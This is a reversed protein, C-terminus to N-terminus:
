PATKRYSAVREEVGSLNMRSILTRFRTHSRLANYAPHVGLSLAAADHRNAATELWDLAPEPENLGIHIMAFCTGAVNRRGALETLCGLIRRAATSDGALGHTQGLAGLMSPTEPANALGAEFFEIARGYDGRQTCLRGMSGLVRASSPDRKLADQYFSMARDFREWLMNLLGSSEYIIPSLPDLRRAAALEADAETFRGLVALCDIGFWHRATAYSPNLALSRRYLSESEEWHWRITHILALTPYPEALGADLEIARRAAREAIALSDSTLVGYDVLITYADALGVYALASDPDAAIAEEFCEVSRRLGEATRTNWYYRGQLYLNYAHLSAADTPRNRVPELLRLQLANAIALAIDDQVAFIDSFERDYSESWLVLGRTGDILQATIRVRDGAKRVSGRLLVDAALQAAAEAPDSQREKLRVASNWAVVQLQPVKTLIHALEETLGDSFYESGPEASLNAFPLVAITKQAAGAPQPPSPQDVHRDFHFVPAYTGVPLEIRVASARGENRYWAALKSRLRRAEVRVIPDVRPDYSPKRDFVEVGILYEKLNPGEDALSREVVFGLFRSMRHSDRFGSSSLIETLHNRILDAAMRPM